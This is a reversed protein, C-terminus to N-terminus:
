DGIGKRASGDVSRLQILFEAFKLDLETDIDLARESPVVVAKVRGEFMSNARRVFEPQAAYAVTTIDFVQPAAQRRHIPQGAQIVLRAYAKEDLTVMNFYPNREAPRVTIVLDADDEELLRICADVDEVNRLPSTPPVCIFTDIKTEPDAEEIKQIAHRWVLWEPADDTALERPRMFPVEAGYQRAVRAIEADETSVIVRDIWQSSLATEIAHAILPKGALARLNKRPLGKSGGRAPVVALRLRRDSM